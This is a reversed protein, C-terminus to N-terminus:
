VDKKVTKAHITLGSVETIVDINKIAKEWTDFDKQQIGNFFYKFRNGITKM